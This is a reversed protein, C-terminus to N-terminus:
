GYKAFCLLWSGRNQLGAWKCAAACRVVGLMLLVVVLWDITAGGAVTLKSSARKTRSIPIAEMTSWCHYTDIQALAFVKDWPLLSPRIVDSSNSFYPRSAPLIVRVKQLSM